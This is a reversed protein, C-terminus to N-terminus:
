RLKSINKTQDDVCNVSKLVNNLISFDFAKLVKFDTRIANVKCKWDQCSINKLTIVSRKGGTNILKQILSKLGLLEINTFINSM